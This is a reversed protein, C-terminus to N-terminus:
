DKELKKDNLIQGLVEAPMRKKELERVGPQKAREDESGPMTRRWRAKAAAYSVVAFNLAELSEAKCNIPAKPPKQLPPTVLAPNFPLAASAAEAGAHAKAEPAAEEHAKAEAEAEPGPTEHAKAEPAAKEHAGTPSPLEPPAALEPPAPLEPPAACISIPEECM